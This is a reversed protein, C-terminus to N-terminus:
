QMNEIERQKNEIARKMENMRQEQMFELDKRAGAEEGVRREAQALRARLAEYHQKHDEYLAHIQNREAINLM